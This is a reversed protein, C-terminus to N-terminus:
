MSAFDHELISKFKAFYPSSKQIRRTFKQMRELTQSTIQLIEKM